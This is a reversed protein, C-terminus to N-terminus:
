PQEQTSPTTSSSPEGGETETSDAEDDEPGSSSSAAPPEEETEKDGGDEKAPLFAELVQRWSAGPEIKPSVQTLFYGAFAVAALILAGCLAKRGRRSPDKSVTRPPLATPDATSFQPPRLGELVENLAGGVGDAAAGAPATAAGLGGEAAKVVAEQGPSLFANGAAELPATEGASVFLSCQLPLFAALLVFLPLPAKAM